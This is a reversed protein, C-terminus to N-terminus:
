STPKPYIKKDLYNKILRSSPFFMPTPLADLSFWKWEEIDADPDNDVSPVGDAVRAAFGITVYHKGPVLDDSVSVVDMDLVALGTEEAVEKEVTKWLSDGFEVKGGPLTWTGAGKLDSKSEDAVRRGLLVQGESNLILIGVGVRARLIEQM